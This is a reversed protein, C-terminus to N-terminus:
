DPENTWAVIIGRDENAFKFRYAIVGPETNIKEPREGNWFSLLGTMNKYSYYIIKKIGKGPDGKGNGDYIFGTNDFFDNNDKEMFGEIMGWSWFIKDVGGELLVTHRKIMESAQERETQFKFQVKEFEPKGTYTGMKTIWLPTGEFGAQKLDEKIRVLADSALSWDDACGTWRFCFIDVDKGSLEKIVPLSQTEYEVLRDESPFIFSGTLLFAGPDIEKVAGGTMEFLSGYGERLASPENDVQWYRLDNNTGPGYHHVLAKVWAEYKFPAAPLYSKGELYQTYDFKAMEPPINGGAVMVEPAIVIGRMVKIERPVNEFYQDFAHWRYDKKNVDPQGIMWTFPLPAYDWDVGAELAQKYGGEQFTNAPHFGFPSKESSLGKSEPLPGEVIFVPESTLVVDISGKESPSNFSEFKADGSIHAGREEEPLAKIIKIDSSNVPLVVRNNKVEYGSDDGLLKEIERFAKDIVPCAEELKEEKLLNRLHKVEGRSFADRLQIGDKILTEAWVRLVMARMVATDVTTPRIKVDERVKNIYDMDIKDLPVPQVPGFSGEKELDELKRFADDVLPCVEEFKGEKILTEMNLVEVKSVARDTALGKDHLIHGWAKAVHFREVVNDVTAGTEEAEKRTMNIYEEDIYSFDETEESSSDESGVIKELGAFAEDVMPSAEAFKGDELMKRIEVAKEESLVENFDVGEEILLSIWEMLVNFREVVNDENTPSEKVERRTLDLNTESVSGADPSPSPKKSTKSNDELFNEIDRFAKDVLSSAKEFKQEKLLNEIKELDEPLFVKTVETEKEILKPLWSKLVHFRKIVNDPNTETNKVEERVTFIEKETLKPPGVPFFRIFIVILFLIINLVIAILLKKQKLFEM